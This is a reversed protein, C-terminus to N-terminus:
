RSYEEGDCCPEGEGEACRRCVRKGCLPCQDDAEMKCVYCIGIVSLPNGVEGVNQRETSYGFFPAVWGGRYRQPQYVISSRAHILATAKELNETQMLYMAYSTILEDRDKYVEM